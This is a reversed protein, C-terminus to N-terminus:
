SVNTLQNRKPVYPQGGFDKIPNIPVSFQYIFTRLLPATLGYIGTVGVESGALEFIRGPDLHEDDYQWDAMNLYLEIMGNKALLPYFIVSFEM